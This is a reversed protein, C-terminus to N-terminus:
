GCIGSQQMTCPPVPPGDYAVAQSREVMVGANPQVRVHGQPRGLQAVGPGVQLPGIGGVQGVYPRGMCSCTGMAPQESAM